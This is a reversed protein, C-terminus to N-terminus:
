SQAEEIDALFRRADDDFLAVTVPITVIIVPAPESRHDEIEITAGQAMFRAGSENMVSQDALDFVRTVALYVRKSATDDIKARLVKERRITVNNDSM